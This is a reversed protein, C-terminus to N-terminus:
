LVVDHSNAVNKNNNYLTRGKSFSTFNDSESVPQVEPHVGHGQAGYLHSYSKKIETGGWNLPFVGHSPYTAELREKGEVLRVLSSTFRLSNLTGGHRFPVICKCVDM